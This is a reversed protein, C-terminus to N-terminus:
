EKGESGSPGGERDQVPPEGRAIVIAGIMAALLIVSAVEFALVYPGLLAEALRATVDGAVAWRGQRWWSRALLHLLIGALGMSALIGWVLQQNHVRMDPDGVGHTLMIVFLILVVIGGCYVLIQVAALLEAGLLLYLGAVSALCPLLWLASHVLNRSLAVLAAPILTGLAFCVFALPYWFSGTLFSHWSAQWLSASV